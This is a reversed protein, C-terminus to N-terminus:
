RVRENLAKRLIAEQAINSIMHRVHSQSRQVEDNLRAMDTRLSVISGMIEAHDRQFSIVDRGLRALECQDALRRMRSGIYAGMLASLVLQVVVAVLMGIVVLSM